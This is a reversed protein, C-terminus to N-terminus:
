LLFLKAHTFCTDLIFMTCKTQVILLHKSNIDTVKLDTKYTQANPIIKGALHKKSIWPVRFKDKYALQHFTM